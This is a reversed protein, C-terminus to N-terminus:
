WRSNRQLKEGSREKPLLTQFLKKREEDLKLKQYMFHGIVDVAQLCRDDESRSHWVRLYTGHPKLFGKFVSTIM